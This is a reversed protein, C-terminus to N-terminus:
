VLESLGPTVYIVDTQIWIRAVQMRVIEPCASAMSRDTM